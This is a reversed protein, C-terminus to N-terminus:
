TPVERGEGDRPWTLPDRIASASSRQVPEAVIAELAAVRRALTLMMASLREVKEHAADATAQAEEVLRSLEATPRNM